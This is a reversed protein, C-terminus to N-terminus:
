KQDSQKMMDRGLIAAAILAGGCVIAFPIAEYFFYEPTYWKFWCWVMWLFSLVSILFAVCFLVVPLRNMLPLYSRIKM